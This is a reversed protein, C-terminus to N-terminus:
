AVVKLIGNMYGVTSMPGGFGALYGVACPVFCQWTYTGAGNTTFTFTVKHHDFSTDCPATGCPNTASDAIAPLPVSIGLEPITFTHGINDSWLSYPKGDVAADTVGLVQNMVANRLMSGSDYQYITMHITTHAPVQLVSTHVWKGNPQQILYSVWPPHPETGMSGVTQMTVNVQGGSTAAQVTPPYRILYLFTWVVVALLLALPVLVVISKQAKTM